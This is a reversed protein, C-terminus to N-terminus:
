VRANGFLHRPNLRQLQRLEFNHIEYHRPKFYPGGGVPPPTAQRSVISALPAPHLSATFDM